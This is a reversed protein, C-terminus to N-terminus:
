SGTYLSLRATGSVGQVGMQLEQRTPVLTHAARQTSMPSTTRRTRRCASNSRGSSTLSKEHCTLLDSRHLIDVCLAACVNTGVRVATDMQQFGENLLHPLTGPLCWAYVTHGPYRQTVYRWRTDWLTRFIGERRYDPHTWADLFKIREGPEEQMFIHGVTLEGRLALWGIHGQAHTHFRTITHM